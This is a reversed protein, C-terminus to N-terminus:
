ERNALLGRPQVPLGEAYLHSVDGVSMARPVAWTTSREDFLITTVSSPALWFGAWVLPLPLALLHALWTLGFGNHCFVAIKKQNPQQVRYRGGERQYGHRALFEDSHKQLTSFTELFFPNDLPPVLHWSGHHPLPDGGRVVEGALDFVYKAGWSQEIQWETLEATWDAIEPTLDLASATYEMTHIARPFPSSYIRDLGQHTFRRALAQAELHGAATITHNPYDPDAHRVIYLRM